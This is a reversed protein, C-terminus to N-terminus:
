GSQITTRTMAACLFDFAEILELMRGMFLTVSDRDAYATIPGDPISALMLGETRACIETSNSMLRHIQEGVLSMAYYFDTRLDYNVNVAGSTRIKSGASCKLCAQHQYARQEYIIERAEFIARFLM